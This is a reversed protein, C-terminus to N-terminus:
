DLIFKRNYIVKDEYYINLVWEGKIIEFEKELSYNGNNVFNTPLYIRYKIFKIKKNNAPDIMEKPFIWEIDLPLIENSKSSLLYEVGFETGLKDKIKETNEIIFATDIVSHDIDTGLIKGDKISSNSNYSGYSKEVFQFKINDSYMINYMTLVSLLYLITTKILKM